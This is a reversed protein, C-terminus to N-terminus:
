VSFGWPGRPVQSDTNGNRITHPIYHGTVTQTVIHHLQNLWTSPPDALVLDLETFVTKKASQLSSFQIVPVFPHGQCSGDAVYALLVQAGTAGLGTLLEVWHYSPTEMVHFGPSKAQAAYRLSPTQSDKLGLKEFYDKCIGFCGNQPVIVSAGSQVLVRTLDALTGSVEAPVSGSTVIGISLPGSAFKSSPADAHTRFWKEAETAAQEIGGDLQISVWGFQEPAL